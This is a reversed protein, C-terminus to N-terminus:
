RLWYFVGRIVDEYFLGKCDFLLLTKAYKQGGKCRIAAICIMNNSKVVRQHPTIQNNASFLINCCGAICYIVIYTQKLLNIM